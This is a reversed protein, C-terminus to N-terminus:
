LKKFEEIVNEHLTTGFRLEVDEIFKACSVQGQVQQYSQFWSNMKGDFTISAYIVKQEEDM